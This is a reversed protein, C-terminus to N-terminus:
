IQNRFLNGGYIVQFALLDCIYNLWKMGIDERPMSIPPWPQPIDKSSGKGSDECSVGLRSSAVTRWDDESCIERIINSIDLADYSVVVYKKRDVGVM